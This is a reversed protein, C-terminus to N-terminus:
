QEASGDREKPLYGMLRKPVRGVVEGKPIEGVEALIAPDTVAFAQIFYEDDTEWLTPSNGGDTAKGLFRLKM